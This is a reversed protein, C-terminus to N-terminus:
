GVAQRGADPRVRPSKPTWAPHFHLDDSNIVEFMVRFVQGSKPCRLFGFGLHPSEGDLTAGVPPVESLARALHYSGFGGRLAVRAEGDQRSVVRYRYM